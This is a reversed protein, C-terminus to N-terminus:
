HRPTHPTHTIHARYGQSIFYVISNVHVASWRWGRERVRERCKENNNCNIRTSERRKGPPRKPTEKQHQEVKVACLFISPFKSDGARKRERNRRERQAACQPSNNVQRKMVTAGPWGAGERTSQQGEVREETVSHTTSGTCQMSNLM